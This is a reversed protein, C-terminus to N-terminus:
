QVGKEALKQGAEHVWSTCDVPWVGSAPPLAYSGHLRKYKKLNGADVPLGGHPV